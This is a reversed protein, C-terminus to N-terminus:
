VLSQAVDRVSRGMDIVQQAVELKFEPSYTPRTRKIM